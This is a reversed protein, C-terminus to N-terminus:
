LELSNGADLHKALIFKKAEEIFDLCMQKSEELSIHVGGFDFKIKDIKIYWGYQNNDRRLPNIKINENISTIKQLKEQRKKDYYKKVGQSVKQKNETTHNFQKGGSVLNYGNPFMTNYEKIYFQEKIHAEETSCNELLTIEFSKKGYKKIANNLYLSQKTKSSYAESVHCNFRKIMGYPRYRKHNLIHSVAQGVYSMNTDKCTLKYIECWRLNEDDLIIDKLSNM